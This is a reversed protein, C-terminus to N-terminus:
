WLPMWVRILIVFQWWQQSMCLVPALERPKGDSSGMSMVPVCCSVAGGGTEILEWIGFAVLILIIPASTYCMCKAISTPEYGRMAMTCMVMQSGTSSRVSSSCLAGHVPCECDLPFCPVLANFVFMLINLWCQQITLIIFWDGFASVDFASYDLTFGQNILVLLLFWFFFMPIHMAPGM